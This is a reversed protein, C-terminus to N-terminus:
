SPPNIEREEASCRWNAARAAATPPVAIDGRAGRTELRRDGLIWRNGFTGRKRSALPLLHNKM